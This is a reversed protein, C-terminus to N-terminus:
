YEFRMHSRLLRRTLPLYSFNVPGKTNKSSAHEVNMLSLSLNEEVGISLYKLRLFATWRFVLVEANIIM